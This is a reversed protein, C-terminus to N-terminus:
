PRHPQWERRLADCCGAPPRLSLVCADGGGPSDARACRRIALEHAGAPHQNYGTFDDDRPRWWAAGARHLLRAVHYIGAIRRGRGRAAVTSLLGALLVARRCMGAHTGGARSQPRRRADRAADHARCAPDHRAGHRGHRWLFQLHSQAACRDHWSRTVVRKRCWKPGVSDDVGTGQRPLEDLVAALGASDVSKTRNGLDDRASLCRSLSRDAHVANDMRRDQLQHGHRASLGARHRPAFLEGTFVARQCVSLEDVAIPWRPLRLLVAPIGADSLAALGGGLSIASTGRLTPFRRCGHEDARTRHFSSATPYIGASWLTAVLSQGVAAM